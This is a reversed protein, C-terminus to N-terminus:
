EAIMVQFPGAFKKELQACIETFCLREYRSVGSETIPGSGFDECSVSLKRPLNWDLAFTKEKNRRLDLGQMMYRGRRLMPDAVIESITLPEIVLDRISHVLVRRLKCRPRVGIQNEEPYYFEVISGVEPLM